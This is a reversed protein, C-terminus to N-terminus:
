EEVTLVNRQIEKEHMPCIINNSWDEPIEEMIWIQLVICRLEIVMDKGGSKLLGGQLNDFGPSRNNKLKETADEDLQVDAYHQRLKVRIRPGEIPKPLM